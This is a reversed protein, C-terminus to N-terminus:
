ARGDLRRGVREAMHRLLIDTVTAVTSAVTGSADVLHGNPITDLLEKYAHRQRAIEALELEPKRARIQEAPADLAVVVDPKPSLRWLLRILWRPGGYRYRRPDVLADVLHRHYLVLRGRALAPRVSVHYWVAYYFFWYAVKILALPLPHTDLAHPRSPSGDLPKRDTSRYSGDRLQSLSPAVLRLEAASFAGAMERRVAEIVTSKGSGDPGLLVVLLGATPRLFHRARVYIRRMRRRAIGIADRKMADRLLERRLAALRASVPTWDASRAADALLTSSPPRWFRAIELECGSPDAAFLSSLVTAEAVGLTGKAIRRTLGCGFQISPAPIWYRHHSRRRKILESGPYFRYEGVDPDAWADLRVVEISGDAARGALVFAYASDHDILQVVRHGGRGAAAELSRALRDPLKGDVVFDTDGGQRRPREDPPGLLCYAIGDADIVDFADQFMNRHTPAVESTM